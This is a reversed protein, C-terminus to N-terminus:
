LFQRSRSRIRGELRGFQRGRHDPTPQVVRREFCVVVGSMDGFDETGVWYTQVVMEFNQSGRHKKWIAIWLRHEHLHFSFVLEPLALSFEKAEGTEDHVGLLLARDGGVTGLDSLGDGTGAKDGIEGGGCGLFRGAEHTGM